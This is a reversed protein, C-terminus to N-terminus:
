ARHSTPSATTRRGADGSGARPVLQRVGVGPMRSESAPSTRPHARRVRRSTRRDLWDRPSPTESATTSPREGAAGADDPEHPQPAAHGSLQEPVAPRRDPQRIQEATSTRTGVRSASGAAAQGAARARGAGRRPRGTRRARREHEGADDARQPQHEAAPPSRSSAPRPSPARHAPGPSRRASRDRARDRAPLSTSPTCRPRTSWASCRCASTANPGGCDPLDAPSATGASSSHSPGATADEIM